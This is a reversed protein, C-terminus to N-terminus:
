ESVEETTETTESEESTNSVLLPKCSLWSTYFTSKYTSTVLSLMTCFVGVGTNVKCNGFASYSWNKNTVWFTDTYYTTNSGGSTIPVIYGLDTNIGLNKIYATTMSSSISFDSIILNDDTTNYDEATSGDKSCQCMKVLINTANNFLGLTERWLNGWFNEIGFVKVASTYTNKGYFLGKNDLTGNSLIDSTVSSSTQPCNGYGFVAQTDTSKGILLLLFTILMQDCYLGMNWITADDINNARAYSFFSTFLIGTKNSTGSISRLRNSSDASSTYASIYCYPIINGSSDLHSWCLYSDDIKKDSFYFRYIDTNNSDPVIKYYVTPIGIMVNGEYSSNTIDSDTEGDVKKSYDNKDLEYDVTGDYKLMVAKLNKIFWANEWDGYNFIDNDFDMHASTFNVNDEIYTIMSAPDSESQNLEFGFLSYDTIAVSKCNDTCNNILGSNSYPFFKYYYTNGITYVIDSDTYLNSSYKGFDKRKLDMILTGDSEDEPESGLKRVIKVGKVYCLLQDDIITDSPETWKLSIISNLTDKFIDIKKMNQPFINIILENTTDVTIDVWNTGNYYQFKSDTYKINGFGDDTLFDASIDINLQGINETTDDSFTVIINNDDDKTLSKISRGDDGKEGKLSSTFEEDAKLDTKVSSKIDTTDISDAISKKFTEDSKLNTEINSEITDTDVTVSSAIASKFDEDSKIANKVNTEIESTDIDSSSGSTDVLKAIESKFTEDNKISDSIDSKVTDLDTTKVVSLLESELSETKSKLETIDNSMKAAGSSDNDIWDALEKLTDFKEPAGAVVEAIKNTIWQNVDEAKAYSELVTSLDTSSIKNGLETKIETDDYVAKNAIILVFDDDSEIAKKINAEITETDISTDVLKAIESKFSDDTIIENKLEEKIKEVDITSSGGSGDCNCLDATYLNVTEYYTPRRYSKGGDTSIEIGRSKWRINTIKMNDNLVIALDKLEM